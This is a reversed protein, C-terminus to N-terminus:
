FLTPEEIIPEVKKKFQSFEEIQVGTRDRLWKAFLHRHCFDGPKEYCLLAVDKGGSASSLWNLVASPSVRSLMQEYRRIYEEQTIDDRLIEAPPAVYKFEIGEFWKPSWRAISIPVIGNEQLRRLNGFYSTYLKMKRKSKRKLSLLKSYLM